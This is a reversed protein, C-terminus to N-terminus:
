VENSKVLVKIVKQNIIKGAMLDLGYRVDQLTLIHTLMPMLNVKGKAVLNLCPSYKQYQGRTGKIVLEKARLDNMRVRAGQKGFTGVIIIEGRPKVIQTAQQVTLEQSGGVAEIVADVGEGGTLDMVRKVVDEKQGNVIEKAGMEKAVALKHDLLDIAIVETGVVRAVALVGLGVPGVGIIAVTDGEKIQSQDIIAHYGVGMPQALTAHEMTIEPPVKILNKAPVKVYEAYGGDVNFGIVQIDKCLHPLGNHCMKCIGCPINTEACVREGIQFETVEAGVEAVYGCFEHGLIRPYTTRFHSGEYAHVDSGCIGCYAVKVLVDRKDLKPVPAEEIRLDFPKHLVAALM